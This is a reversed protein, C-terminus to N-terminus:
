TIHSVTATAAAAKRAAHVIADHLKQAPQHKDAVNNCFTKIAGELRSEADREKLIRIVEV